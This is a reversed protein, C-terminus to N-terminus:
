NIVLATSTFMLWLVHDYCHHTGTLCYTFCAVIHTQQTQEVLRCCCDVSEFAVIERVNQEGYKPSTSPHIIGAFSFLWEVPASSPLVANFRVFLQKIRPYSCLVDIDKRPEELFNFNLAEL